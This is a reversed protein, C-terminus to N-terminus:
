LIELVPSRRELPEDGIRWAHRAAGAGPRDRVRARRPARRPRRGARRPRGGQARVRRRRAPRRARGPERGRAGVEAVIRADVESSSGRGTPTCTCSGRRAGAAGRGAPRRGAGRDLARVGRAGAGSDLADEVRAGLRRRPCRRIRWASCSRRRSSRWSSSTPRGRAAPADRGGGAGRARQRGRQGLPEDMASLVATVRRGAGRGLALM